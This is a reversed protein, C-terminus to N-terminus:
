KTLWQAKFISWNPYACSEGRPDALIAALMAEQPSINTLSNIAEQPANSVSATTTASAITDLRAYADTLALNAEAIRAQYEAERQAYLSQIEDTTPLATSAAAQTMKGAIAGGIVLLFVTVTAALILAIKQKM